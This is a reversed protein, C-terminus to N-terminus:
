SLHSQQRDALEHRRFKPLPIFMSSRVRYDRYAQGFEAEMDAEEKRALRYYLLVLIPWMILLPLTTWEFMMGLTILLFGTYQPHRIHAYIGRTVLEGRGAEKRWYDRYIDRWGWIILIAGIITLLYMLYTGGLGIQQVLTHGWLIGEPLRSGILWTIIYMTLPVGFMEFALAVVFAAYVGAPKRQSKKYFPTFLLFLLFFGAWLVFAWWQGFHSWAPDVSVPDMM